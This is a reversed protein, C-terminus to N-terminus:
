LVINRLEDRRIYRKINDCVIECLQDETEKLFGFTAGSAHPTIMCRPNTWLPHNEPLPEPNTVDLAAGWLHGTRLHEDLALCDIFNGRGVNVIVAGRKMMSLRREDMYGATDACNPICGVLVDADTLYQEAEDLTCLKNFGSRLRSTDRCVGIVRADFGRLRKAVASGIDGAGFILINAGDLTRVPGRREWIKSSQQAHYDIFNLNLTLIMGLVFQSMVHGYAGSANALRVEKPFPIDSLTYQDTGAYSMQIFRLKPCNNACDKLYDMKPQGIVVEAVKLEDILGSEECDRDLIIIDFDAEATEKILELHEERFPELILLRRM